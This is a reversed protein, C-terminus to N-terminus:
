QKVEPTGHLRKYIEMADLVRSRKRADHLRAAVRKARDPDTQNRLAAALQEASPANM